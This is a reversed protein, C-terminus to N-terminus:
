KSFKRYIIQNQKENNLFILQFSQKSKDFYLVGFLLYNEILILFTTQSLHKIQIQIKTIDLKSKDINRFFQSFQFKSIFKGDLYYFKLNNDYNLTLLVPPTVKVLEFYTIQQSFHWSQKFEYGEEDLYYYHINSLDQTFLHYAEGSWHFVRFDLFKRDDIEFWDSCEFNLQLGIGEESGYECL